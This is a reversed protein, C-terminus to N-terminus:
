ARLRSLYMLLQHPLGAMCLSVPVPHLPDAWTFPWLVAACSHAPGASYARSLELNHQCHMLGGPHLELHLVVPFPYRHRSQKHELGDKLNMNFKICGHRVHSM